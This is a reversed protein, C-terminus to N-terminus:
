KELPQAQTPQEPVPEPQPAPERIPPQQVEPVIASAPLAVPAVPTAPSTTYVFAFEAIGMAAAGLM